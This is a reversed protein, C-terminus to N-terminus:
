LMQTVSMQQWQVRRSYQAHASCRRTGEGETETTVSRPARPWPFLPVWVISVTECRVVDTNPCLSLKTPDPGFAILVRRERASKCNLQVSIPLHSLGFM